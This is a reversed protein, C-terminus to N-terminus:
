DGEERFDAFPDGLIRKGAVFRKRYFGRLLAIEVRRGSRPAHLFEDKGLYIGVHSIFPHTRTHFFVLDGPRLDGLGVYVGLHSDFQEQATRPLGVGLQAFVGQVLASCDVGFRNEGGYLYPAAYYEDIATWMVDEPGAGPVRLLINRRQPRASEAAATVRTTSSGKEVAMGSGSLAREMKEGGEIGREKGTHQIRAMAEGAWKEWDGSQLTQVEQEFAEQLQHVIGLEPELVQRYHLWPLALLLVAAAGWEVTEQLLWTSWVLGRM